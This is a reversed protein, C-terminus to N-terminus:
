TCKYPTPAPIHSIAQYTRPVCGPHLGHETMNFIDSTTIIHGRPLLVLSLLLILRFESFQILKVDNELVILFLQDSSHEPYIYIYKYVTYMIVYDDDIYHSNNYIM